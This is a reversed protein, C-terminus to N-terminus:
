DVFYVLANLALGRDAGLNAQGGLLESVPRVTREGLGRLELPILDVPHGLYNAGQPSAHVLLASLYDGSVVLFARSPRRLGKQYGGLRM